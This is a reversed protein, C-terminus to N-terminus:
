STSATLLFIIFHQGEEPVFEKMADCSMCSQTQEEM